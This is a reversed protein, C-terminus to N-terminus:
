SIWQFESIQPTDNSCGFDLFHLSFIHIHMHRYILIHNFSMQGPQLVSLVVLDACKLDTSLFSSSSSTWCHEADRSYVERDKNVPKVVSISNDVLHHGQSTICEDKSSWITVSADHSWDNQHTTVMSSILRHGHHQRRYHEDRPFIWLGKLSFWSLFEDVILRRPGAMWWQVWAKGVTIDLHCNLILSKIQHSIWICSM